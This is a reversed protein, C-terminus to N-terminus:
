SRTSAARRPAIEGLWESWRSPAQAFAIAGSAAARPALRLAEARRGTDMAELLRGRLIIARAHRMQRQAVRRQKPTLHGRDLARQYARTAAEAILWPSRSRGAEGWRYVCLPEDTRVIEYGAELLRLWLDFDDSTAYRFGDGGPVPATIACAESIGGVVQVGERDAMARAVIYNRELLTELDLESPGWPFHESWLEETLGEPGHIYGNFAIVGPRGGAARAADYLSVGRELYEPLYYDDSDLLAILEGRAEGLALNRAAPAGVNRGPHLPRIREDREAYSRILAPTGDTSADDVVLLEWDGLTQALVSEIAQGLCAEDNYVPVIVSVRPASM